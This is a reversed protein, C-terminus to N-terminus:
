SLNDFLNIIIASDFLLPIDMARRYSTFFGRTARWMDEDSKFEIRSVVRNYDLDLIDINNM